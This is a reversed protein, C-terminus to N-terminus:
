YHGHLPVAIVSIIIVLYMAYMMFKVFPAHHAPCYDNQVSGSEFVAPVRQGSPLLCMMVGNIFKMDTTGRCCYKDRDVDKCLYGYNQPIPLTM